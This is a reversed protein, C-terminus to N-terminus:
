PITAAAQNSPTSEVGSADVSKVFYEYSAGSQVNTDVFTTQTNPAPNLLTYTTSSGTARYVNYGADPDTSVGPDWTLTVQHSVAAGSGSLGIIITTNTSSNSVIKLQGATDGVATPDFQVSLVVALTPNLTVPFVAGSMTFGSGTLTASTITVPVTGTSSLTIPITSPTNVAVTGFALTTSSVMLEPDVVAPTTGTGSLTVVPKSNTASDSQITLQGSVAGAATPDFQVNVNVSQGPRLVLPFSTGSLSFGAGTSSASTITVPATGTSSLTLPQASTTNLTVSGFTLSATSLTLQPSPAVTGIGTISVKAASNASSNSQVTLQGTISGAAVPTLHVNWTIAQGPSLTIPFTAGTLSLGAGTLAASTVTLPATGTSTLTVPQASTSNITVNGFTLSATSLTLQPSPVAIGAGSLNVVETSNASSTSHITLQGSAPGVAAPDFEVNLTTSQNPSLTIPFGAGALSFSTGTLTGADIVVPATGTSTLTLPQKSSSGVTVNGFVVSSASLTLQPATTVSGTGSLDVALTSGNVSDSQFTLTDANSGAQTPAYEVNLVSSQGPSLTKPFTGGPLSFSNGAFTGASITVPTTGSSTLTLPLTAVTGLMVNGFALSSKDLSLIPSQGRGPSNAVVGQGSIKGVFLSLGKSGVVKFQGSYASSSKPTFGVEINLVGGGDLTVPGSEQGDVFFSQGSVTVQSIGIPNNTQNLLIVLSKATQGIPVSGFSVSGPSANLGIISANPSYGCGAMNLVLIVLFGLVCRSISSRQAKRYRRGSSDLLANERM